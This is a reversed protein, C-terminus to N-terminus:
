VPHRGRRLASGRGRQRGEGFGTVLLCPSRNKCWGYVRVRVGRGHPPPKLRMMDNFVQASNTERSWRLARRGRRRCVGHAAYWHRRM